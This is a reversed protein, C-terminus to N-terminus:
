RGYVTLLAYQGIMEERIPSVAAKIPTSIMSLVVAKLRSARLDVSHALYSM